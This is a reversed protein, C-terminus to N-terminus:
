ASERRKSLAAALSQNATTADCENMPPNQNSAQGGSDFSEIRDPTGIRDFGM